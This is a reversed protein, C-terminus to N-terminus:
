EVGPLIKAVAEEVQEQAPREDAWELAGGSDDFMVRAAPSPAEWGHEACVAVLAERWDAQMDTRIKDAEARLEGARKEALDAEADLRQAEVSAYASAHRLGRILARQVDTCDLRPM